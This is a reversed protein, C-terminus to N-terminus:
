IYCKLELPKALHYWVYNYQNNWLEFTYIYNVNLIKMYYVTRSMSNWSGQGSVVQCKAVSLYFTKSNMIDDCSSCNNWQWLSSKILWFFFVCMFFQLMWNFLYSILINCKVHSVDPIYYVHSAKLDRCFRKSIQCLHIYEHQKIDRFIM